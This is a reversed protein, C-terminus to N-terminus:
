LSLSRKGRGHPNLDLIAAHCNAGEPGRVNEVDPRDLPIPIFTPEFPVDCPRVGAHTRTPAAKIRTAERPTPQLTMGGFGQAIPSSRHWSLVM